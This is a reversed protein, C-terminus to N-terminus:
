IILPLGSSSGATPSFSPKHSQASKPQSMFSSITLRNPLQIPPRTTTTIAPPDRSHSTISIRPLASSSFCEPVISRLTHTCQAKYWSPSM